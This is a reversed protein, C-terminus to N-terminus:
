RRRSHRDARHIPRQPRRVKVRRSLAPRGAPTQPDMGTLSVPTECWTLRLQVAGLWDVSLTAVYLM